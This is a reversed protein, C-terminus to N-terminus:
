IDRWFGLAAELPVKFVWAMSDSPRGSADHGGVFLQKDGFPSLAFTRPSVLAKKGPAYRGNVERVSYTGDVRRVAYMAGAYLRSGQWRLHPKGHIAGQFGIIHVVEGTAPHVVPYMENHAGLVYGVEVNLAEAMLARVSKEEHLTYGGAGDPDLRKIRGDSKGDPAWLFLLSEGPGKPNAIATLGRIGGVDTNVDGAGLDLMKVFDPEPGDQRQYVVGGVSFFLSGNAEAMGLPRTSFKGTEPFSINENWRIKGPLEADYVGSIIGPNGLLLFVHEVGTAKDRYVAMDRPIWRAGGARSGKQVIGHHWEGSEDDRVWASVFGEQRKYAGAAMVLLRKPKPLPRGAGDRTFRVSKLINGKMYRLGLDNAKGLDLDVSWRGDSADLRLVQASQRDAYDRGEWRAEKWYGNAAYLKGKHPVLHMIESGGAFAGNRDVHGAEYSQKWAGAGAHEAMIHRDRLWAVFSDPWMAASKGRGMGLDFGHGGKGFVHLEADVGAKLLMAYFDVCKGAPTLKDDRANMVFFPCIGPADSGAKLRKELMTGADEPIGPYFLGAFDPMGSTKSDPLLYDAHLACSLALHGGASFGSIGIRDAQLGFAAANRRLIRVAQYGDARVGKLYAQWTEASKIDAPLRTRYKLVLSTIGHAKLRLALDHGERDLWVDRFGGGPCIVLGVGNPKAPRHISYTPRSVRSFVRNLGSLVGARAKHARELEQINQRTMLAAPLKEWLPREPPLGPPQESPTESPKESLSDPLSEPPEEPPAEVAQAPAEALLIVINPRRRGQQAGDLAADVFLPWQLVMLFLAFWPHSM